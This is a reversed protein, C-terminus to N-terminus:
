LWNPHAAYPFVTIPQPSLSRILGFKGRDKVPVNRNEKCKPYKKLIIKYNLYKM